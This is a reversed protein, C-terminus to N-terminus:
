HRADDEAKMREAVGGDVERGEAMPTYISGSGPAAPAGKRLDDYQINAALRETWEPFVRHSAASGRAKWGVALQERPHVAIWAIADAVMQADDMAANRPQHGSYNAAHPWWPTDAAWPLVAAARVQKQKALRSEQNLSHTLSLVAAKTAAYGAQYALPVVSDVSATNVLVGHGQARFLKMAAHSGYVVGKLNIDIVRAHDEVPIDEFRGIAGVGANNVWADVRGFRQVAAEALHRVQQADSVDTQVVLAEGGHMRVQEAVEELLEVRRAALVVNAHQRALALATGRGFGSSAGTIVFTKREIRPRDGDDLKPSIVCAALLVPMTTLVILRRVQRAVSHFFPMPQEDFSQSCAQRLGQEWERESGVADIADSKNSKVYPKVFQAPVITTIHGYRGTQPGAM